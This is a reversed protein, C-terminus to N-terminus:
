QVYGLARLQEEVGPDMPSTERQGPRRLGEDAMGTYAMPREVFYMPPFIRRPLNNRFRRPIREGLIHMTMAPIDGLDTDRVAGSEIPPGLAAFYGLRRHYASFSQPPMVGVLSDGPNGPVFVFGDAEEAVIEPGLDMGHGRSEVARTDHVSSVLPRGAPDRLAALARAFEGRATEDAGGLWFDGGFINRSVAPSDPAIREMVRAKSVGWYAPGFGHDSLVFLVTEEPLRDLVEGLVEDCWAYSERVANKLREPADDRYLPHKADHFRWLHHQIRDPSTFVIFSLDPAREFLLDLAVDRRGRAIALVHDLWVEERGPQPAGGYEDPLYGRARIDEELEPPFTLPANEPYPFGAIMFGNVSDPPSTVPVNVVGVTHGLVSLDEWITPALRYTADVYRGRPDDETPIWFSWIGHADPLVGTSVTTWAPPSIFPVTSRVSGVAGEERLRAFNPLLGQQEYQLLVGPDLGDFGLLFVPRPAVKEAVTLEPQAGSCAALAVALLLFVVCRAARRTAALSSPFRRSCPM